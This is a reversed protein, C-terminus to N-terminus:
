SPRHAPTRVRSLPQRYNRISRAISGDWTNNAKCCSMASRYCWPEMMSFVWHSCLQEGVSRCDSIRHPPASSPCLLLLTTSSASCHVLHHLHYAWPSCLPSRSPNWLLTTDGHTPVSPSLVPTTHSPRLPYSTVKGSLGAQAINCYFSCFLSTFNFNIESCTTHATKLKKRAGPGEKYLRM